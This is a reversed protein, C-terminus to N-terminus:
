DDAGGQLDQPSVIMGATVELSSALSAAQSIPHVEPRAKGSPVNRGTGAGGRTLQPSPNPLVGGVDDMAPFQSTRSGHALSGINACGVGQVWSQKRSSEV